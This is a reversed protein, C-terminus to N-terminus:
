WWKWRDLAVMGGDNGKGRGGRSEAIDAVVADTEVALVAVDVFSYSSPCCCWGGDHNRDRNRDRDTSSKENVNMNPIHM